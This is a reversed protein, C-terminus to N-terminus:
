GHGDLPLFPFGPTHGGEVPQGPRDHRRLPLHAQGNEPTVEHDGKGEYHYLDDLHGDFLQATPATLPPVPWPAHGIELSTWPEASRDTPLYEQAGLFRRVPAGLASGGAHVGVDRHAARPVTREGVRGRRGVGPGGGPPWCPLRSEVSSAAVLKKALHRGGGGDRRAHRRAPGADRNHPRSVAGFGPGPAYPRQVAHGDTPGVERMRAQGDHLLGGPQTQGCIRWLQGFWLQTGMAEVYSRWQRGVAGLESFISAATTTCSGQPDCDGVWPWSAFSHGSTMEMYNPLSPHTLAEYRTALGCQAALSNIEPASPNGIISSYSHNEEWILLVQDVIPKGALTGCPRSLTPFVRTAAAAANPGAASAGALGIAAIAGALTCIM